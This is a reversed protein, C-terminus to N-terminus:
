KSSFEGVHRVLAADDAHRTGAIGVRRIRLEEDHEGVTRRQIALIRHYALDHRAHIDDVLQLATFRDDVRVLHDLDLDSGVDLSASPAAIVTNLRNIWSDTTDRRIANEGTM